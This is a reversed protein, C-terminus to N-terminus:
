RLSRGIFSYMTRWASAPSRASHVPSSASRGSLGSPCRWARASPPPTGAAPGRRPRPRRWGVRGCLASPPSNRPPRQRVRGFDLVAVQEGRGFQPLPLQRPLQGGRRRHPPARRGRGPGAPMGPRAARCRCPCRRGPSPRPRAPHHEVLLRGLAVPPQLPDHRRVPEQGLLRLRRTHSTSSRALDGCRWM